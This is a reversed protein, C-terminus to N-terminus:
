GTRIRYKLVPMSETSNLHPTSSLTSCESEICRSFASDAENAPSNKDANRLDKAFLWIRVVNVIILNGNIPDAVGDNEPFDPNRLRITVNFNDSDM